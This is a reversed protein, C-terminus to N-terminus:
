SLDEITNIEVIEIDYKEAIENLKKQTKGNPDVEGFEYVYEANKDSIALANGYKKHGHTMESDAVKYIRLDEYQVDATKLSNNIGFRVFNDYYGANDFLLSYFASGASVCFIVAIVSIIKHLKSKNVLDFEFFLKRKFWSKDEKPSFLPLIVKGFLFFVLTCIFLAAFSGYFICDRIYNEEFYIEAGNYVIKNIVFFLLILVVSVIISVTFIGKLLYTNFLEYNRVKTDPLKGGDDLFKLLRKEYDNLFNEDCKKLRKHLNKRECVEAYGFIEPLSDYSITDEYFEKKLELDGEDDYFYDYEANFSDVIDKELKHLVDADDALIKLYSYYKVATDDAKKIIEYLEEKDFYGWFTYLEFDNIDFLNFIQYFNFYIESCKFKIKYDIIEECENFVGYRILLEFNGYDILAYDDFVTFKKGKNNYYESTCENFLKKMNKERKNM